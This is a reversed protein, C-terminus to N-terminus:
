ALQRNKPERPNQYTREKRVDEWDKYVRQQIKQEYWARQKPPLSKIPDDKGQSTVHDPVDTGGVERHTERTTRTLEAHQKAGQLRDLPGFAARLAEAELALAQPTNPAPVSFGVTTMRQVLRQYEQSAKQREPSTPNWAEPVVARYNSLEDMIAQQGQAVRQDQRIRATAREEAEQVLQERWMEDADAQTLEAREVAALLDARKIPKAAQATRQEAERFREREELRIREERERQLEAALHNKEGVVESFRPYPVPGPPTKPEATSQDATEQIETTSANSTPEPSPTDQALTTQEGTNQGDQVDDPM